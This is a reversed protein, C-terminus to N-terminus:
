SNYVYWGGTGDRLHGTINQRLLEVAEGVPFRAPARYEPAADRADAPTAVADTLQTGTPTM